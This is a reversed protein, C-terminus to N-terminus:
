AAAPLHSNRGAYATIQFSEITKGTKRLDSIFGSTLPLRPDANVPTKVGEYFIAKGLDYGEILEMCEKGRLPGYTLLCIEGNEFWFRVPCDRSQAVAVFLAGTKRKEHLKQLVDAFLTVM